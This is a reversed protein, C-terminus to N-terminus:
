MMHRSEYEFEICMADTGHRLNVGTSVHVTDPVILDVVDPDIGLAHWVRNYDQIKLELRAITNKLREYEALSIDVRDKSKMLDEHRQKDFHLRDKELAEVERRSAIQSNVDSAYIGLLAEKYKQM